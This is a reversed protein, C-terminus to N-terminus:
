GGWEVEQPVDRGLFLWVGFFASQHRSTKEREGGKERSEKRFFFVRAGLHLLGGVVGSFSRGVFCNKM